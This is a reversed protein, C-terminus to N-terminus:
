ASATAERRLSGSDGTIITISYQATIRTVAHERTSDESTVFMLLLSQLDGSSVTRPQVGEASVGM